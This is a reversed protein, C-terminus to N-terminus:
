PRNDNAAARVNSLSRLWADRVAPDLEDSPIAEVDDAAKEAQQIVVRETTLVHETIRVTNTALSAAQEAHTKEGELREVKAKRWGFPDRIFGVILFAVFLGLAIMAIARATM